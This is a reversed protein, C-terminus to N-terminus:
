APLHGAAAAPKLAVGFAPCRRHPRRQTVPRSDGTIVKIAVGLRALNRIADPVDDNPRDLFTLFGDFVFDRELERGYPPSGDIARSAVGLVRIGSQSWALYRNELCKRAAADLPSGDKLTACIELVHDFAGKTLLRRRAEAEIAITARKRVSDFPIEGLKRLASTEPGGAALIADDLPNRLGTALVASWGALLRVDPSPAGSADYAGELRVVGRTLTGTKDTCLVDMSGLNEIANLRRVLVGQRAMMQAGRALNVSLIAPLLEPSLGVALAVAFLLTELAPRGNIVHVIFVVFVMVLMASTLLYGFHRVGREFEAEPPRLALRHAIAGFETGPGTAAVIVRATGSRVDTGLFLSNPRERLPAAPPSAGTQKQVPFSEGTLVAENVYCDDAELAVGHAPVLSGASLQV